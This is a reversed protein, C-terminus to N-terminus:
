WPLDAQERAHSQTKEAVRAAQKRRRWASRDHSLHPSYAYGDRTHIVPPPTGAIRKDRDRGLKVGGAAYRVAFRVALEDAPERALKRRSM